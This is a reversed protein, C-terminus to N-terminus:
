GKDKMRIRVYRAGRADLYIERGTVVMRMVVNGCAPCRLVIGPTHVYALLGGIEGVMGCTACEAPCATMEEAFIEQLLGAVANGDLRMAEIMDTTLEM